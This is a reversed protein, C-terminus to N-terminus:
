TKESGTPKPEAQRRIRRRVTEKQEEPMPHKKADWLLCKRIWEFFTM